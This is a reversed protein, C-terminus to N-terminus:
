ERGIWNITGTGSAMKVYITTLNNIPVSISQGPILALYQGVVTGVLINTTNALDSQLLVERISPQPETALPQPTTTVGTTQGPYLRSSQYAM